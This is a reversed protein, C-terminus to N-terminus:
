VTAGKRLNCMAHAAQVNAYSHEGGRALPIVHDVQFDTPAVLEGCIGCIGAARDYVAGPDVPEVLAGRIAARRALMRARNRARGKESTDYRSRAARGKETQEYRSRAVRHQEPNARQREVRAANLRERHRAHHARRSARKREIQDTGIM